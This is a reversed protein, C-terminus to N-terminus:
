YLTVLRDDQIFHHVKNMSEHVQRIGEKFRQNLRHAYLSAGGESMYGDLDSGSCSKYGVPRLGDGDSM